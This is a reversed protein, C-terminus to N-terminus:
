RKRGAPVALLYDLQRWGGPAPLKADGLVAATESQLNVVRDSRSTADFM